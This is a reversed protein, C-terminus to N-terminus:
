QFEDDFLLITHNMFEEGHQLYACHFGHPCYVSRTVLHILRLTVCFAKLHKLKYNDVGCLKLLQPLITSYFFFLVSKV